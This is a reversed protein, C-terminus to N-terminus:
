PGKEDVRGSQQEGLKSCVSCKKLHEFIRSEETRPLLKKRYANLNEESPCHMFVEKPINNSVLV